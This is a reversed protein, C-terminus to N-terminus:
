ITIAVKGPAAPTLIVGGECPIRPIPAAVPAPPGGPLRLRSALPQVARRRGGPAPRHRQHAGVRAPPQARLPRNHVAKAELLVGLEAMPARASRYDRGNVMVHGTTPRDLGAILRMTTSKGAGNPGLFGTVIGPQVTFTLRDVALKEGYRKSLDEVEIM